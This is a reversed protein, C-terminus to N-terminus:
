VRSLSAIPTAMVLAEDRATVPQGMVVVVPTSASLVGDRVAVPPRTAVGDYAPPMEMEVQAVAVPVDAAGDGAVAVAVSQAIPQAVPTPQAGGRNFLELVRLADERDTPTTRRAGDWAGASRGNLHITAGTLYLTELDVVKLTENVYYDLKGNAKRRFVIADGDTDTYAVRSAAAAARATAEASGAAAAGGAREGRFTPVPNRGDKALQWPADLPPEDANSRVRYLDGDDVSLRDKDAIYWWSSDRIKYRLLYWQGKKFLPAGQYEGDRRYVGNAAPTGAGSVTISQLGAAAPAAARYVGDNAAPAVPAAPRDAPRRFEDGPWGAAKLTKLIILCTFITVAGIIVFALGAGHNTNYRCAVITQVREGDSGTPCSGQYYLECWIAVDCMRYRTHYLFSGAATGIVAFILSLVIQRRPPQHHSTHLFRQANFVHDQWRPKACGNWGFHYILTMLGMAVSGVVLVAPWGQDPPTLGDECENEELDEATRTGLAWEQLPSYTACWERLPDPAISM